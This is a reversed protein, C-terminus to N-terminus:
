PISLKKDTIKNKLDMLKKIYGNRRLLKFTLNEYSFEGGTELGSQRFSKLKKRLREIKPLLESKEGKEILKDIIKAFQEGKKLIKQDDIKQVSKEPFVLWNNNLVSYVGSSVHEENVDQVYVEVDFDNIKVNHKENWINKKADFFEKLLETNVDIEEFDILFHLDIDSYESWNYNALSGTLIIDHIFFEIGLSDLFDNSIELLQKRIADIMVYQGEKKEFIDLCLTNKLKFSRVIKEDEQTYESLEFVLSM